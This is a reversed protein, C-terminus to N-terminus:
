RVPEVPLTIKACANILRDWVKCAEEEGGKRTLTTRDGLIILGAKARTLAVNLRRMDKLFGIDGHENCRVTVFIIVDAEQGQFGDISSVQSGPCSERILEAQHTYPTLIATSSPSAEHTRPRGAEAPQEQPPSSLLSVIKKCLKTQGPNAKSKRGYDERESCQVFVCRSNTPATVSSSQQLVPWPFQSPPLPLRTCDSSTLLRGQYFENSPFTCIDPHMRYQTDLMVRAVSSNNGNSEAENWLREMLSVDFDLAIAHKRITARLQVHDGVLVVRTCGKVLPIISAPETQQSAEDIVVTGFVQKRLLGLAAGVCTTFVLRSETIRKVAARKAAPHQNLDKGLMADCTYDKM